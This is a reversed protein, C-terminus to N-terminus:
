KFGLFWPNEFVGVHNNKSIEMPFVMQRGLYSQKTKQKNEKKLAKNLVKDFM